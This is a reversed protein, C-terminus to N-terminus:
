KIDIFIKDTNELSKLKLIKKPYYYTKITKIEPQNKSYTGDQNDYTNDMSTEVSEKVIATITDSNTEIKVNGLKLSINKELETGLIRSVDYLYIKNNEIKLRDFSYEHSSSSGSAGYNMVKFNIAEFKEYNISVLTDKPRELKDDFRYITLTDESIWEGIKGNIEFGGNVDFAENEKFILTKYRDGTFAFDSNICVRYIKYNYKKVTEIEFLCLEKKYEEITKKKCSIISLLALLFLIKLKM